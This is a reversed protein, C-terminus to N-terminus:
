ISPAGRSDANVGECILDLISNFNSKLQSSESLESDVWLVGSEYIRTVNNTDSSIEMEKIILDNTKIYELLSSYNKQSIYRKIESLIEEEDYVGPEETEIDRIKIKLKTAYEIIKKFKINTFLFYKVNLDKLSKEFQSLNTPTVQLAIIANGTKTEFLVPNLNKKESNDYVAHQDENKIPKILQYYSNM